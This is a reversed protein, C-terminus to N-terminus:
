KKKAGAYFVARMFRDDWIIIIIIIITNFFPM